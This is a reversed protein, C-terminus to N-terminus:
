QNHETIEMANWHVSLSPVRSTFARAELDALGSMGHLVHRSTSDTQRDTESVSLRDAGRTSIPTCTIYLCQLSPSPHNSRSNHQQTRRRPTSTCVRRTHYGVTRYPSTMGVM